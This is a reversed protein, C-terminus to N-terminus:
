SMAWEFTLCAMTFMLWNSLGALTTNSILLPTLGAWIAFFCAHLTLKM